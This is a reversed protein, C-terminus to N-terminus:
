KLMTQRAKSLKKASSQALESGVLLKGFKRTIYYNIPKEYIIVFNICTLIDAYKNNYILLNHYNIILLHSGFEDDIYRSIQLILYIKSPQKSFM